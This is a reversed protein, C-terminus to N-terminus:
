QPRKHPARNSPATSGPAVNRAPLQDHRTRRRQQRAARPMRGVPREVQGHRWADSAATNTPRISKDCITWAHRVTQGTPYLGATAWASGEARTNLRPATPVLGFGRPLIRLDMCMGEQRHSYRQWTRRPHPFRTGVTQLQRSLCCALTWTQELGQTQPSLSLQQTSRKLVRPRFRGQQTRTQRHQGSRSPM